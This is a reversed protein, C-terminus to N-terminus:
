LDATSATDSQQDEDGSGPEASCEGEEPEDPVENVTSRKQGKHSKQGKKNKLWPKKNSSSKNSGDTSTTHKGGSTSKTSSKKQFKDATGSLHKTFLENQKKVLEVIENTQKGIKKIVPDKTGALSTFTLQNVQSPDDPDDQPTDDVQRVRSPPPSADRGYELEHQIALALTLDINPPNQRDNRGVYHQLRRNPQLAQFFTDRAKQAREPSSM